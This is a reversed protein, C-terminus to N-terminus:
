CVCQFEPVASQAAPRGGVLACPLGAASPRASAKVPTHVVDAHLSFRQHMCSAGEIDIATGGSAATCMGIRPTGILQRLVSLM